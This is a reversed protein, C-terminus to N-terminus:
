VLESEEQSPRRHEDQRDAACHPSTDPYLDGAAPYGMRPWIVRIAVLIALGSVLLAKRAVPMPPWFGQWFTGM